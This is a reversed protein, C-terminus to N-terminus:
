HEPRTGGARWRHHHFRERQRQRAHQRWWRVGNANFATNSELLSFCGLDSANIEVRGGTPANTTTGNINVPATITDLGVTLTITTISSMFTINHPGPQENAEQIAARLTCTNTATQCIADDMPADDDPQSGANNVVFNLAQAAQPLAGFAALSVVLVLRSVVHM